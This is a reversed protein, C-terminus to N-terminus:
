QALTVRQDGQNGAPMQGPAGPSNKLCIAVVAHIAGDPALFGVEIPTGGQIMYLGNGAQQWIPNDPQNGSSVLVESNDGIKVSHAGAPASAMRSVLESESMSPRPPRKPPKPAVPPPPPPVEATSGTDAPQTTTDAPPASSSDAPTTTSDAPAADGTATTSDAPLPTTSDASTTTTDAPASTTTDTPASATLDAPAAGTDTTTTSGSDAPVSSSDVPETSTSDAPAAGTDATGSGSSDSSASNTDLTSQGSDVSTTSEASTSTDAAPTASDLTATSETTATTSDAPPPTTSDASATTTDAPATTTSDASATAEGSDAPPATTSDAPPAAIMGVILDGTNGAPMQSPAGPDSKLCIARIAHLYGDINKWQIDIPTAADIAYANAGVQRWAFIRSDAPSNVIEEPDAGISVGHAGREANSGGGVLLWVYYNGAPFQTILGAPAEGISNTYVDDFRTGQRTATPDATTLHTAAAYSSGHGTSSGWDSAQADYGYGKGLGYAGLINQFDRADRYIEVM